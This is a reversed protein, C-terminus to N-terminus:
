ADAQAPKGADEAPREPVDVVATRADYDIEILTYNPLDPRFPDEMTGAGILPVTIRPM